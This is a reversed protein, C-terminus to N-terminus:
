EIENEVLAGGIVKNGQYFVASQGPTIARQANELKVELRDKGLKNVKAPVNKARYRLKVQVKKPLRPKRGDIWHPNEAIFKDKFLSDHGFPAVILKNEELNKDAVYYPVPASIGLGERQGITYFPLGIHKGLVKGDISIIDGQTPKIKQMLFERIRAPGVFCIGTSDPKEATPLGFKKALARVEQKTLDGLPFITHALAKQDLLYLFYSQDKERDLGALLQYQELSQDKNPDIGTLLQYKHENAKAKPLPHRASLTERRAGATSLKGFSSSTPHSLLAVPGAGSGDKAIRAYHGTAIYDFGLECAKQLFLGFKIEKNCMVDPNPTRGAEYERYFYDIVKQKYEKEFDFVHFPIGLTAAVRAADAEDADATCYPGESWCRMYAGEIQGEAEALQRILLATAVSSDVGGSLAVLVRKRRSIPLYKTITQGNTRNM